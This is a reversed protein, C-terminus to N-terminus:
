KQSRHRDWERWRGLYYCVACSCLFCFVRFYYYHDWLWFLSGFVARWLFYVLTFVLACGILGILGSIIKRM